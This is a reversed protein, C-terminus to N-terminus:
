RLKIYEPVANNDMVQKLVRGGNVLLCHLRNRTLSSYLLCTVQLLQKMKVQLQSAGLDILSDSGYLFIDLNLTQLKENM